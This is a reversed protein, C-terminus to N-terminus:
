ESGERPAEADKIEKWKERPPIRGEAILQDIIAEVHKKSPIYHVEGSGIFANVIQRIRNRTEDQGKRMNYVLGM